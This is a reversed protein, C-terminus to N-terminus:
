EWKYKSTRIKYIEDLGHMKWFIKDFWKIVRSPLIEHSLNRLRGNVSDRISRNFPYNLVEPNSLKFIQHVLMYPLNRFKEDVGLGIELLERCNLPAISNCCTNTGLSNVSSCNSGYQEWFLLDLLDINWSSSLTSSWASLAQLIIPNSTFGLLETYFLPSKNDIHNQTKSTYYGRIMEGLAGTTLTVNNPIRFFNPLNILGPDWYMNGMNKKLIPLYMANQKETQLIKFKLGYKKALKKPTSIDYKKMQPWAMSCITVDADLKDICSFLLRSDYGGTLAIYIPSRNALSKLIQRLLAVIKTAATDLEYQKIASRPWFRHTSNTNLDLYHNSPLKDVGNYPTLKWPWWGPWGIQQSVELIMSSITVSIVDSLLGPQAAIWFENDSQSATYYSSFRGCADPYLRCESNIKVFFLWRGSLRKTLDEFQIFTAMKNIINKVIDINYYNSNDPDYADGLLILMSNNRKATVVNLNPHTTIILDDTFSISNWNELTDPKRPGVIYQKNYMLSNDITQMNM